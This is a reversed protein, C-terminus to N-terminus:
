EAGVEQALIRDKPRGAARLADYVIQSLEYEYLATELHKGKPPRKLAKMQPKRLELESNSHELLSLCARLIASFNNRKGTVEYAFNHWEEHEEETCRARLEKSLIKSATDLDISPAYSRSPAEVVRTALAPAPVVSVPQAQRELAEERVPEVAPPAVEVVPEGEPTQVREELSKSASERYQSLKARVPSYDQDVIPRRKAM